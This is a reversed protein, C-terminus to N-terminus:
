WVTPSGGRNCASTDGQPRRCPPGRCPVERVGIGLPPVGMFRLLGIVRRAVAAAIRRMATPTPAQPPLLPLLEFAEFGGAAMLCDGTAAAGVGAGLGAGLGALCADGAGAGAGAGGGCADAGEFPMGWPSTPSLSESL